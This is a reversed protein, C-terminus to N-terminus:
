TRPVFRTRRRRQHGNAKTPQGQTTRRHAATSTQTLPLSIITIGDTCCCCSVRLLRLRYQTCVRVLPLGRRIRSTRGRNGNPQCVIRNLRNRPSVTRRGIVNTQSLLPAGGACCSIPHNGHETIKINLM